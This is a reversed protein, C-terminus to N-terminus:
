KEGEGSLFITLENKVVSLDIKDRIVGRAALGKGGGNLGIKKGREKIFRTPSLGRDFVEKAVALIFINKAGQSSLFVVSKNSKDRIKDALYLLQKHNKNKLSRLFLKCGAVEYGDKIIDDVESSLAKNELNIIHTQKEKLEQRLKLVANELSSKEVGTNLLNAVKQVADRYNTLFRYAKKGTFAEIRRIGSSVSSENVICFIGAQATNSLHTGGCLEKSYDGVKVVRVKDGYKDKFFALAGQAKAEKLSLIEKSVSVGRLIYDNVLQEILLLEKKRLSEVHTFDFRLRDEEVLSGQQSIHEGLRERLAAQLLHTATHARRLGQRRVLDIRARCTQKSLSGQKMYGKHIIAENVRQVDEVVFCGSETILEGKDAAQGGSEPYFPTKDLVVLAKDNVNINDVEKKDKIIKIVLAQHENKQYGTFTVQDEVQIESKAFISDEFMSAKRSKDKQEQLLLNFRSEDVDLNERNALDKTLELPVGYTDYLRFAQEGNIFNKDRAKVEKAIQSFHNQADKITAIFKEEETKVVKAITAQQQLVDPYPDRMLNAFVEVLQYAFPKSNGLLYSNWSAKRILKRIVYGRQENSPMVGDCVAFTASRIYDVIAYLLKNNQPKRKVQLIDASFDVAPKLIDIEFNSDKGQLVSAMRELGMGTDINEQGLGELKNAGIRNFQTFVLNWIEVFRGCDCSPGCNDQGCGYQQGKDYFIESCPGCPGNPGKSPANAPWFNEKEGYTVIKERKFGIVRHWINYAQQDETYVSVWLNEPPIKIIKTLFDWAYVIAQEKFYDDFSFNGLMEFFTHHWPTKGVEQLDDTRLCKQCSVARKLGKKEGLFYPKFQNMGASTFFVTPDRPVLSDSDFVKHQRDKFFSIFLKRLEDTKV